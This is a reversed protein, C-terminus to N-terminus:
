LCYEYDYYDYFIQTLFSDSKVKIPAMIQVNNSVVKIHKGRVEIFNSDMISLLELTDGDKMLQFVLKESNLNHVLWYLGKINM